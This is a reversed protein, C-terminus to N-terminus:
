RGQAIAKARAYNKRFADGLENAERVEEVKDKASLAQKIAGNAQAYTVASMDQLVALAQAKRPEPAAIIARWADALEGHTDQCMVRVIFAMERFLGGTWAPRYILQDTADFPSAEPDSRWQLWDEHQYFDKRVPLRRLAFREPGGPTGPKFNWLKQGDMSMVFEIFAEAVARHKAGRLLAIPDVSSVTGGVPAVFGVRDSAGRREVAEAQQRGYFDICLGIACNGMAVDIPPKQSTDTFYRSNAGILQLLRMGAEWGERVAQAERTKTDGAPESRELQRLRRQMQQQIINEFAKAISGSKTPDALAVEGFFRPDAAGTWQAPPTTFGLRKLADRNYIMGYSSLVTGLWLGDKDWYEEGAYERPIVDDTFWEPHHKLVGSAVFRGAQAQKVFDYTGGGFFVDIGCSAESTLFTARAERVIAPTDPGLRHSQFGAQIETSWPKGMKGTWLNQFSAVYEGELFRAIESTGGIVRWDIFVTRGTRKQYWERFGRAFEHRIAENHPTIIVLTDDASMSATQKPRLLFPVAVTLALTVLILIRKM